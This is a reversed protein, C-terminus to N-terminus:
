PTPNGDSTPVSEAAPSDIAQTDQPHAAARALAKAGVGVIVVTPRGGHLVVAEPLSDVRHDSTHRDPWGARSVVTVPTDGPWGAGLLRRSLAALQRGAM